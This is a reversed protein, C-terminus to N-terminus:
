SGAPQCEGATWSARVEEDFTAFPALAAAVEAPTQYREQPRKALMKRLIAQVAGPVGARLQDLPPPEELQQQLVIEALSIGKFPPQGTLIYYLTCGLSYIDGRIDVQRADRAQEPALYAPTGLVAGTETLESLSPDLEDVQPLRAVGMDLIKVRTGDATLLLNAPKIDRHVLGREFAHQLGLAAQRVYECALSVPLPGHRQVLAALDTGAVYEMVLFYTGEIEAADYVSVINPHSLRAAAQAERHFREIAKPNALQEPRILKLAVERELRRHRAKFVLGMGGEGLPELIEYGAVFSGVAPPRWATVMGAQLRGAEAAIALMAWVLLASAMGWLLNASWWLFDPPFHADGFLFFWSQEAMLVFALPLARSTPAGPASETLLLRLAALGALLIIALEMGQHIWGDPDGWTETFPDLVGRLAFRFVALVATAALIFIAHGRRANRAAPAAEGSLALFVATFVLRAPTGYFFFTDRNKEAVFLLHVPFVAAFALSAVAAARAHRSGTALYTALALFGLLPVLAVNSWVTWNVLRQFPGTRFGDNVEPLLLLCFFWILPLAVLLAVM